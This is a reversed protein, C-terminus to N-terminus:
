LVAIYRQNVSKPKDPNEFRMKGQKIFKTMHEAYIIVWRLGVEDCIEQRTKPTTCLSLIAEQITKPYDSGASVFRQHNHTPSHPMNGVLKGEALLTKIVATDKFKPIGFHECVEGRSKPTQCFELVASQTLVPTGGYGRTVYKKYRRIRSNSTNNLEGKAVLPYIYGERATQCFSVGIHKCIEEVTRPEKCFELIM